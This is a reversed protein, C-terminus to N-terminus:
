HPLRHVCVRCVEHGYTRLDAQKATIYDNIDRELQQRRLEVNRALADLQERSFGPVEALSPDPHLLM